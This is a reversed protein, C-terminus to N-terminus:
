DNSVAGENDKSLERISRIATESCYTEDDYPVVPYEAGQEIIRYADEISNASVHYIVKVEVSYRNTM